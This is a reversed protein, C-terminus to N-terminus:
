APAEGEAPPALESFREVMAKIVLRQVFAKDSLGGASSTERLERRGSRPDLFREQPVKVSNGVDVVASVVHSGCIGEAGGFATPSIDSRKASPEASGVRSQSHSRRLKRMYFYNHAHRQLGRCGTNCISESDM